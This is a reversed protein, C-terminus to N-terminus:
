GAVEAFTEGEVRCLAKRPAQGGDHFARRAHTKVAIGLAMKSESSCSWDNLDLALQADLIEFADVAGEKLPWSYSCGSAAKGVLV